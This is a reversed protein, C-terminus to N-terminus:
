SPLQRSNPRVRPISYPLSPLTHPPIARSPQPDLQGPRRIIFHGLHCSYSLNAPFSGFSSRVGIGTIDPNGSGLPMLCVRPCQMLADRFDQGEPGKVNQRTVEPYIASYRNFVETATAISIISDCVIFSSAPPRSPSTENPGSPQSHSLPWRAFAYLLSSLPSVKMKAEAISFRFVVAPM